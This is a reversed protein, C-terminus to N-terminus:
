KLDDKFLVRFVHRGERFSYDVSYHYLACINKVIALGLGTSDDSGAPGTQKYFRDFIRNLVLPILVGTNEIVLTDKETRVM